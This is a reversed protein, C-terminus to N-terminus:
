DVPMSMTNHWAVVPVSSSMWLEDGPPLDFNFEKEFNWVITHSNSKQTIHITPVENVDDQVKEFAIRAVHISLKWVQSENNEAIRVGPTNHARDIRVFNSM